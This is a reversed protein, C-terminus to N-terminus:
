IGFNGGKNKKEANRAKYKNLIRESIFDDPTYNYFKGEDSDFWWDIMEEINSYSAQRKFGSLMKGSPTKLTDFDIDMWEIARDRFYKAASLADDKSARRFTPPLGRAARKQNKFKTQPCGAPKNEVSEYTIGDTADASPPIETTNETNSSVCTEESELTLNRSIGNNTTVMSMKPDKLCKYHLTPSGNVKVKKVKLFGLEVLKKRSRDQQYPSLTTEYEIEEKKKYIYGDERAGKDSWYHLQQYFIATQMDGVIEVLQPNFAIPQPQYKM